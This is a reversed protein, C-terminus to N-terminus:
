PGSGHRRRTRSHGPPKEPPRGFEFLTAKTDKQSRESGDTEPFAHDLQSGAFALDAGLASCAVWERMSTSHRTLPWTNVRGSHTSNPPGRHVRVPVSTSGLGFLAAADCV